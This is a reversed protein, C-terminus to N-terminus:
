GPEQDIEKLKPRDGRLAPVLIPPETNLSQAALAVLVSDLGLEM